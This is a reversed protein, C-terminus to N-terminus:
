HSPSNVDGMNHIHIYRMKANSLMEITDKGMSRAVESIDVEEEDVEEVEVVAAAAAEENVVEKKNKLNLQAGDSIASELFNRIIKKNEVSVSHDNKLANLFTEVASVPKNETIKKKRKMNRMMEEKDPFDSYGRMWDRDIKDKLDWLFSGEIGLPGKSAIAYENGTSIIGIISITKFIM